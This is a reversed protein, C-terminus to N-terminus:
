ITVYYHNKIFAEKGFSKKFGDGNAKDKALTTGRCPLPAPGLPVLPYFSSRQLLVVELLLHNKGMAFTDHLGSQYIDCIFIMGYGFGTRERLWGIRRTHM